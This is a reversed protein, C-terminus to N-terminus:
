PPAVVLATAVVSDAFGSAVAIAAVTMDSGYPPLVEFQGNYRTSARTPNSGDTTYFATAGPAVTIDVPFSRGDGSIYDVNITPVAVPLRGGIVLGIVHLSTTTGACSVDLFSGPNNIENSEVRDYAPQWSNPHRITHWMQGDQSLGVVELSDIVGACSVDLFPGPNNQEQAEILGYTPLWTGDRNLITHWMQGDPSLGVVQLLDGVGACSVTMFPGTRSADQGTADQGPIPDYKPQWSGDPKRITHWLQGDQTLGVVHLFIQPIFGWGGIVGACSVATFPGPNNQEQGEILGYFRQWTGDENRITHWMQGDQSLGVVHLSGGVGACSVATFPGPDNQEQSEILVYWPWWPWGPLPNRMTHWMQGARLTWASCAAQQNDQFAQVIGFSLLIQHGECLDAGEVDVNNSATWGERLRPDTAAENIEHSAFMQWYGNPNPNRYSGCWDREPYPILAYYGVVAGVTGLGFAGHRACWLSGYGGFQLGHTFVVFLRNATSAPLKGQQQLSQIKYEPEWSSAPRPAEYETCSVGVSGGRVGYQAVVCKQGFPARLYDAYRALYAQMDTIQTQTFDGWFLSVLEPWSIIPGGNWRLPVYSPAAPTAPRERAVPGAASGRAGTETGRDGCARKDLHAGEEKMRIPFDIWGM